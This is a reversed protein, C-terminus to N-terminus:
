IKREWMKRDLAKQRSLFIHSLLIHRWIPYFIKLNMWQAINNAATPSRFVKRDNSGWVVFEIDSCLDGASTCGIESVLLFTRSGFDGGSVGVSAISEM